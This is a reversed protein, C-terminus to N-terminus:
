VVGGSGGVTGLANHGHTAQAGATNITARTIALHELCAEAASLYYVGSWETLDSDSAVLVIGNVIRM